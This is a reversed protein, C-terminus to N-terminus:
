TAVELLAYQDHSKDWRIVVHRSRVNALGRVRDEFLGPALATHCEELSDSVLRSVPGHPHIGNHLTQDFPTDLFQHQASGHFSGHAFAVLTPVHLRARVSGAYKAAIGAQM